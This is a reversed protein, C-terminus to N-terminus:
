VSIKFWAMLTGVIEEAMMAIAIALVLASIKGKSDAITRVNPSFLLGYGVLVFMIVAIIIAINRLSNIFSDGVDSAKKDLTTVNTTGGEAAKVRDQIGTGEGAGEGEAVQIYTDGVALASVPFVSFLTVVLLLMLSVRGLLSGKKMLNMNLYVGKKRM